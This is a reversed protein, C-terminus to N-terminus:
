DSLEDLAEALAALRETAEVLEDTARVPASGALLGVAAILGRYADLGQDLHRRLSGAV